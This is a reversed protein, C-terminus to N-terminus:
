ESIERLPEEEPNDNKKDTEAKITDAYFKREKKPQEVEVL